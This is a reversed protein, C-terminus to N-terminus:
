SNAASNSKLDTPARLKYRKFPSLIYQGGIVKTKTILLFCLATLLFFCSKFSTSLRVFLVDFHRPSDYEAFFLCATASNCPDSTNFVQRKNIQKEQTLKYSQLSFLVKGLFLKLPNKRSIEVVM